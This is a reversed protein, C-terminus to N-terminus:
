ESCKVRHAIKALVDIDDLIARAETFRAEGVYRIFDDALIEEM